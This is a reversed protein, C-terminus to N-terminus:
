GEGDHKNGGEKVLNNHSVKEKRGTTEERRNKKDRL